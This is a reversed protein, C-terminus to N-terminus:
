SIKKIDNNHLKQKAIDYWTYHNISEGLQSVLSFCYLSVCLGNTKNASDRFSGKLFLKTLLLLKTDLIVWTSFSELLVYLLNMGLPIVNIIKINQTLFINSCVRSDLVKNFFLCVIILIIPYRSIFLILIFLDLLNKFYSM